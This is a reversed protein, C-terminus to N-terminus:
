RRQFYLLLSDWISECFDVFSDTGDCEGDWIVAVAGRAVASEAYVLGHTNFGQAAIFLSGDLVKRNDQSISRVKLSAFEELQADDVLGTLLEGLTMDTM